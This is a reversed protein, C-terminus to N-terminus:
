QLFNFAAMKHSETYKVQVCIHTICLLNNFILNVLVYVCASMYVPGGSTHIRFSIYSENHLMRVRARVEFYSVM